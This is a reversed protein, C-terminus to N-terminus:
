SGSRVPAPRAPDTAGSQRGPELTNWTAPAPAAGQAPNWHGSRKLADAVEPPMGEGTDLVVILNNLQGAEDQHPRTAITM